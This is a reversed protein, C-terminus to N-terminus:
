GRPKGNGNIARLGAPGAQLGKPLPRGVPQVLVPTLEKDTFKHTPCRCIMVMTKENIPMPLSMWGAQVAEKPPLAVFTGASTLVLDGQIKAPCRVPLVDPKSEDPPPVYDCEMVCGDPSRIM